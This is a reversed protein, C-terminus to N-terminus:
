VLVFPRTAATIRATVMRPLRIMSLRGTAIQVPTRCMTTCQRLIPGWHVLAGASPTAVSPHWRACRQHILHALHGPQPNRIRSKPRICIRQSTSLRPALLSPTTSSQSSRTQLRDMASLHASSASCAVVRQIGWGTTTRSTTGDRRAPSRPIRTSSRTPTVSRKGIFAPRRM